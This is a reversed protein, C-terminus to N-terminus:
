TPCTIEKGIQASLAACLMAPETDAINHKLAHLYEDQTAPRGLELREGVQELGGSPAPCSEATVWAQLSERYAAMDALYTEAIPAIDDPSGNGNILRTLNGSSAEVRRSTASAAANIEGCDFASTDSGDGCGTALAVCVVAIGLATLCLGNIVFSTSCTARRGAGLARQHLM